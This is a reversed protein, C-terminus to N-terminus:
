NKFIKRLDKASFSHSFYNAKRKSLIRCRMLSSSGLPNLHLPETATTRFKYMLNTVKLNAEMGGSRFIREICNHLRRVGIFKITIM